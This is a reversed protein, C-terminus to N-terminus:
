VDWVLVRGPVGTLAVESFTVGTFLLVHFRWAGDVRRPVVECTSDCECASQGVYADGWADLASWSTMLPLVDEEPVDAHLTVDVRVVPGALVGTMRPWWRGDCRRVHRVDDVVLHAAGALEPVPVADGVRLDATTTRGGVDLPVAPRWAWAVAALLLLGAVVSVTTVSRTM